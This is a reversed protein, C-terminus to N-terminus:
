DEMDEVDHLSWTKPVETETSTEEPLSEAFGEALLTEVEEIPRNAAIERWKGRIMPDFRSSLILERLPIKKMDEIM